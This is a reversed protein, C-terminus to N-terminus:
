ASGSAASSSNVADPAAEAKTAAPWEVSDGWKRCASKAAAIRAASEESGTRSGQGKSRCRLCLGGAGSVGDAAAIESRRTKAQRSPSRLAAVAKAHGARKLGLHQVLQM